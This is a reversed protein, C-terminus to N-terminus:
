FKTETHAVLQVVVRRHAQVVHVRLVIKIAVVALFVVYHAEPRLYCELRLLLTQPEPSSSKAPKPPDEPSSAPSDPCSKM